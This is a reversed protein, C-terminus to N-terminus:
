LAGSVEPSEVFVHDLVMPCEESGAEVYAKSEYNQTYVIAVRELFIESVHRALFGLKYVNANACLELVRVYLLIFFIVFCNKM